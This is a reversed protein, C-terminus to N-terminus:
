KAMIGDGSSTGGFYSERDMPLREGTETAYVGTWSIPKTLYHYHGNKCRVQGKPPSSLRDDNPDGFMEEQCDPCAVGSFLFRSPPPANRRAAEEQHEKMTKM